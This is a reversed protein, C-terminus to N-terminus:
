TKVAAKLWWCVNAFGTGVSMPLQKAAFGITELLCFWTGAGCGVPQPLPRLRGNQRDLQEPQLV